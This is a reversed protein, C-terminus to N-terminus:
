FHFIIIKEKKPTLKTKPKSRKESYCIKFKNNEDISNQLNNSINKKEKKNNNEIIKNISLNSINKRKNNDKEKIRSSHTTDNINIKLNKKNNRKGNNILLFRKPILNNNIKFDNKDSQFKNKKKNKRSNELNINIRDKVKKKKKNLIDYNNNENYKRNNITTYYYLEKKSINRRIIKIKSIFYQHSYKNINEYDNFSILDNSKKNLNYCPNNTKEERKNKKVEGNFSKPRNILSISNNNKKRIFKKEFYIDDGFNSYYINSSLKNKLMKNKENNKIIINKIKTDLINEIQANNYFINNLANIINSEYNKLDILINDRSDILFRINTNQNIKRNKNQNNNVNKIVKKFNIIKQQNKKKNNTEFDKSYTNYNNKISINKNNTKLNNSNNRKNFKKIEKKKNKSLSKFDKLENFFCNSYTENNNITTSEGYSERMSMSDLLINNAKYNINSDTYQKKIEKNINRKNSKRIYKRKDKQIKPIFENFNLIVKHSEKKCIYKNNRHIIENNYLLNKFTIKNNQNIMNSSTLSKNINNTLKAM